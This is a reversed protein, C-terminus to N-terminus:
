PTTTFTASAFSSYQHGALDKVTGSVALRYQTGPSLASVPTLTVTRLDASLSRTTAVIAGTSVVQLYVGTNAAATLVSMPNLAESFTVQPTVNTAVGTSNNAPAYTAPTVTVLDTTAGTTFTASMSASIANGAVDEVGAVEVDYTTNAQLLTVPTLTVIRNGNSFTRSAVAVEVGGHNLRLGDLSMGSIAEDFRVEIRVNRPAGTWGDPPSTSVVAPATTDDTTAAVFYLSYYSMTNGALDLGSSLYVQYQRGAGLPAAPVFTVTRGDASVALTGTRYGESYDYLFTGQQALVTPVDMPESLVLEIVTNVPVDPQSAYINSSIVSPPVTDASTGAAFQVTQAAVANGATDEVGNLTVTVVAGDPLPRQPTVTVQTNSSGFSVSVPVVGGATVTVTTDTVTLPNVAESFTVRILANVGVGTAGAPPVVTATPVTSDSTAGAYFYYSTGGFATGEVDQLGNTVYVYYYTNAELEAAPVFRVVRDGERLTLTGAVPQNTPGHRLYLTAETVTAADLAESFELDIVTNRPNGSTYLAPWTRVLTPTTATPEPAVRFQGSHAYLANGQPDEAMPQVFVQVLAGAAFPVDPTFTIATNGGSLTVAGPVLVGNESVFVAGPVTAPNLPANVFLTVATTAAVQTAGNGPRQTVISPRGTENAPGTTFTSTFEALANGSLDQVGGTAVVTILSDAPLSATLTVTRNDASRTVSTSLRTPGAFLACTNGNVTNPHLSESFTLVVAMTPSVDSAGGNPTVAQVTPATVDAVAATTFSRSANSLANGALDRIAGNSNPSVTVTVGGPFPAAPTFTIETGAANVRYSGAMQVGGYGPVNAVVRVSAANVAAAGIPESLTLVVPTDVPVNTAGHAPAIATVTPATTDNTAVGRTTFSSSFPAMGNGALDRLGNVTVTYKTSVALATTPTFTLTVRDSELAVTGPAAPNVQVVVPGVSTVDVAESLTLRVRANVPVEAAGDAPAVAVVTPATADVEGATVFYVTGLSAANGALDTFSYLYFYHQTYPDLPEVPVLTASKRDAAVNITGAVTGRSYSYLYFNGATLSAPSVAESFEVRVVVNRAVGVDNQSPSYRVVTPSVLDTATATTFTSTVPGVIGNGSTDKLGALSLTFTAGQALLGPPLLRLRRNGDSWSRSVAVTSGNSSLAVGAASAPDIPEDFSAELVANRPVGTVDDDPTMGTITPGTTDPAFSTTFYLSYANMMNGALDAASALNIQYQRGVGLPAAPVFTVTRGDASVALTGARYGETYDYLFTGQRALVTPADMPESLVLDIVANVPVDPQNSAINSSVVTPRVTDASGGTAFTVTQAAVANGAGDEVGALTVTVVAGDPLPRQPTVTVQANSSPFGLSVPVPGGATVTVTTATVTLPNVAESFTVRILANVGVGTAGAPPVVTATPPTADSTTGTYFYYSTGGFATGDLDQVDGTVYVYFYTNAGLEAAPVFRVTRDGERLTLTGAVLQNGSDRVYVTTESVTAPNLAESFELDIVPNRVNASSYQPPWTRVLTPATENPEPAVLFQGSHAYVANGQGDDATPQVFAKVVAGAAFPADPTFTIATNGGSLTVTGPVLVGNESVFVAGPVTAPNLPEDAFLTIATTAAVQTAGNGPRQTVISPRGTENAPGTTFTSAFEALANGSLDQVGGTAVVTIPTAAPLSGTLTVTRNDASRTVSTSLRTPGAFLAFTNGTVTNPHLSESFTLVVAMTPSVESAGANPTVAEVTPATVDATAATTFSRSANSLANGALDRIALNANPSVTVKVGGPFPAAPTFTIETGAANVSYSGAMQVGGYGPVNAVVRVSAPGVAAAGIPESLTLVVVTDVPVNTAGSAPSSATVTPATTDSTAVGRTTFTSSFPTMVTGALDRLGSVTVTYGTSVALATAPTLTLTVRDSELAVTGPAAPAVQVM